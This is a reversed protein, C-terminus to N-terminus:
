DNQKAKQKLYEKKGELFLRAKRDIERYSQKLKIMTDLGAVPIQVDGIKEFYMDQKAIKYDVGGVKAMLDIYYDSIGVRVVKYRGLMESNLEKIEDGNLFLLLAKKIRKINEASTEVLFDIDYTPRELGHLIVACGEILVYKVDNKNLINCFSSLKELTIM